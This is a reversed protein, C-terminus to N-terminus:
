KHHNNNYIEVGPNRTGAAFFFFVERDITSAVHVNGSESEVKVYTCTHMRSVFLFFFWVDAREECGAFGDGASMSVLCCCWVRNVGGAGEEWVKWVM